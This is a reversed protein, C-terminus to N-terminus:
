RKELLAPVRGTTREHRGSGLRPIALTMLIAATGSSQREMREFAQSSSGRGNRGTSVRFQTSPTALARALEELTGCTTNKNLLDTLWEDMWQHRTTLYVEALGFYSIGGSRGSPLPMVKLRKSM